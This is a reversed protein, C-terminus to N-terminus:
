FSTRQGTRLSTNRTGYMFDGLLFPFAYESTVNYILAIQLFKPLADGDRRSCPWQTM